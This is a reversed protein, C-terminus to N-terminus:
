LPGIGGKTGRKWREALDFTMIGLHLVDFCKNRRSFDFMFPDTQAIFEM